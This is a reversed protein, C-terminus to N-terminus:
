VKIRKESSTFRTEKSGFSSATKNDSKYDHINEKSQTTQRVVPQAPAKTGSAQIANIPTEISNDYNQPETQMNRSSNINQYSAATNQSAQTNQAMQARGGPAQRGASAWSRRNATATAAGSASAARVTGAARTTAAVLAGAHRFILFTLVGPIMRGPAATIAPNLGIRTIIDDIKRAVKVIAVTLIMWPFADVGTPCYGMVSILMKLFIVNLVMVTCMSSFMRAWGKFIAETNKSGGMAFALPSLIVLMAVILYREGVEFFFKISTFLFLVMIIM